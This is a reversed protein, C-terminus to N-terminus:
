DKLCRLSYGISKSAVSSQLLGSLEYLYFHNETSSVSSNFSWYNARLGADNFSSAAKYGSPLATFGYQDTGVLAYSPWGYIAKLTNVDTYSIAIPNKAFNFLTSWENDSPVHWGSPCVGQQKATILSACSKSNCTDDLGMASAWTYLRGYKAGSDPRNMYWWSSDVKYNLNQAMWTQSGITTIRYRQGDRSDTIYQGVIIRITDVKSVNGDEDKVRVYIPYNATPTAPLAITTDKAGVKFITGDLSWEYTLKGLDKGIAHLTMSTGVEGVTDNVTVTPIDNYITKLGIRQSTSGGLSDIVSIEFTFGGSVGATGATSVRYVHKKTTTGSSNTTDIAGDGFNWLVKTVGNLDSVTVTHTATDGPTIITSDFQCNITAALNAIIVKKNAETTGGLSDVVTAKVMVISDKPFTGAYTHKVTSYAGLTSDTKGDGFNWLVKAVAEPDTAQLALSVTNTYTTVDSFVQISSPSNVVHLTLSDKVVNSDKDSARVRCVLAGSDKPLALVYGSKSEPEWTTSSGCSWELSAIGAHDLTDRAQAKLLITRGVPVTTDNGADLKPIANTPTFAPVQIATGGAVFPVTLYGTAHGASDRAILKLSGSDSGLPLLAAFAGNTGLTLDTLAITGSTSTTVTAELRAIGAPNTLVGFIQRDAALATDLKRRMKAVIGTKAEKRTLALKLSSTDVYGAKSFSLGWIGAPVQTLLFKGSSDSLTTLGTAGVVQISAGLIPKGATDTVTGSFSGTTDVVPVPRMKMDVGKKDEDIALVVGPLSTDMWNTKTFRLTWTRGPVDPITYRGLSDTNTAYGGSDLTVAVGSIGTGVSDTVTGSLSGKLQLEDITDPSTPDPTKDSFCGWFLAGSLLGLAALLPSRKM